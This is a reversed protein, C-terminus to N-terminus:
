TFDALCTTKELFGVRSVTINIANFTEEVRGKLIYPGTKKLMHCFKHYVKPFFVAEYVATLDEFTIFKMPAGERTHITKGTVPWGVTTVERGVLSHLDEARVYDLGKLIDGCLALPHVSLIFGFVQAEHRLMTHRPYPTHCDRKLRPAQVPTKSLDFLGPTKNEEKRAFFRIAEWVLGPRSIGRAIDDFCGGKILIRVDQLHLHPRTRNLFDELSIFPGSKVRTYVIAEKAEQSIGRLQMLGVQIQRDKGIYKIESRNIDPPLVEIGMRRAESIYSLTPYYGGHNSIVSAMFEAPYHARLYASKYAVM